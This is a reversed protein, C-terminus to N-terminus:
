EPLTCKVLVSVAAVSGASEVTGLPELVKEAVKFDAPFWVMVAVSAAVAEIVPVEPRIETLGPAAVLNWTEAGSDAVAPVTLLKM